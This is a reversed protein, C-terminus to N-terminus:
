TSTDMAVPANKTRPSSPSKAKKSASEDFKKESSLFKKPTSPLREVTKRPPSTSREPPLPLGEKVPSLREPPLPLGEKVPPKRPPFGKKAPPREPPLPLGEKVPPSGKKVPPRELPLPLGEKVPLSAKKAPPREPPLPLGEKPEMEVDKSPFWNANPIQLGYKDHVTEFWKRPTNNDYGIAFYHVLNKDGNRYLWMSLGNDMPGVYKFLFGHIQISYVNRYLKQIQQTGLFRGNGDFALLSVGRFKKKPNFLSLPTGPPEIAPPLGSPLKLGQEHYLQYYEGERIMQEHSLDHSSIIFGHSGIYWDPMSDAKYTFTIEKDSASPNDTHLVKVTMSMDDEAVHTIMGSFVFNNLADWVQVQIGKEYGFQSAM